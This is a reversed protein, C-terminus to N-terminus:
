RSANSPNGAQSYKEILFRRGGLLVVPKESARLLSLVQNRASASIRVTGVGAWRGDVGVCVVSGVVPQWLVMEIAIARFGIIQYGYAV